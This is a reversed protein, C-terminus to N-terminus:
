IQQEGTSPPGQSGSYLLHSASTSWPSGRGLDIGPGLSTSMLPTGRSPIGNNFRPFLHAIASRGKNLLAMHKPRWSRSHTSDYEVLRWLKEARNGTSPLGRRLLWSQIDAYSASRDSERIRRSLLAKTEKDRNKTMGRECVLALLECKAMIERPDVGSNELFHGMNSAPRMASSQEQTPSAASSPRPGSASPSHVLQTGAQGLRTLSMEAGLSASQETDVAQDGTSPKIGNVSGPPAVSGGIGDRTHQSAAMSQRRAIRAQEVEMRRSEARIVAEREMTEQLAAEHQRKLQDLLNQDKRRTERAELTERRYMERVKRRDSIEKQKLGQQLQKEKQKLIDESTDRKRESRRGGGNAKARARRNRYVQDDEDEESEDDSGQQTM